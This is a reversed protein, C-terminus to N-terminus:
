LGCGGREGVACIRLGGAAGTADGEKMIGICDGPACIGTTMIGAGTSEGPVCVPGCINKSPNKKAKADLKATPKAMVAFHIYSPM